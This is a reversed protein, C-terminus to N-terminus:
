NFHDTLDCTIKSSCTEITYKTWGVATAAYGTNTTLLCNPAATPHYSFSLCPQSLHCRLGCDTASPATLSTMPSASRHNRLKQYKVGNQPQPSGEVALEDLALFGTINRWVKVFRVSQQHSCNFTFSEGGGINDPCQGCVFVVANPCIISDDPSVGVFASRLYQGASYSIDSTITINHVTYFGLLDGQWSPLATRATYTPHTGSHGDNGNAATGDGGANVKSPKGLMINEAKNFAIDPVLFFCIGVVLRNLLMKLNLLGM